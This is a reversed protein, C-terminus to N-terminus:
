SLTKGRKKARDKSKTVINEIIEYFQKFVKVEKELREIYLQEEYKEIAEDRLRAEEPHKERWKEDIKMEKRIKKAAQEWHERTQERIQRAEEPHEELYKGYEDEQERPFLNEITELKKELEQQQRILRRIEIPTPTEIELNPMAKEEYLRRYFENDKSATNNHLEALYNETKNKYFRTLSSLQLESPKRSETKYHIEKHNLKQAARAFARSVNKTNIKKNPNNKATFLLSEPTLTEKTSRTELYQILYQVAEEGIFIPLKENPIEIKCPTPPKPDLIKELNKIKLEKITHPLLGSQRMITLFAKERIKCEKTIKIIENETIDRSKM